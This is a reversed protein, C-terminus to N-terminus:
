APVVRDVNDYDYADFDQEDGKTDSFVWYVTYENGQEDIAPCTMEFDYEEGEAVEHFNKPYPLLRNTIDTQDTLIYKKGEFEVSGYKDELDVVSSLDRLIDSIPKGNVFWGSHNYTIEGDLTDELAKSYPYELREQDDAIILLNDERYIKLM